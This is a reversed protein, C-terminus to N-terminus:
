GWRPQEGMDIGLATKGVIKWCSEVCHYKAGVLRALWTAGHDVGTVWDSAVRELLPDMTDHILIMDDSRTARMGMVEWTEKIKFGETERPMFAHIIRPGSAQSTDMGHLGFRNWLLSKDGARRRDAAVGMWYLHMNM